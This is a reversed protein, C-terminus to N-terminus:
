KITAIGRPRHVSLFKGLALLLDFRQWNGNKTEKYLVTQPYYRSFFFAEKDTIKTIGSQSFYGLDHILLEGKNINEIAVDM